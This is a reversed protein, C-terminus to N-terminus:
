NKKFKQWLKKAGYLGGLVGLGMAPSFEFPVPTVVPENARILWNGDFSRDGNINETLTAFPSSFLSNVDLPILPDNGTAFNAFLYSRGDIPNSRDQGAPLSGGVLNRVLAGIFFRDNVNFTVPTIPSVSFIGSGPNSIQTNVTQLVVADNPNGDNNPDSFLIVQSPAGNNDPNSTGYAVSISSIVEGGTQITFSNLWLLDFARVDTGFGVFNNLGNDISYVLAHSPSALLSAVLSIASISLLKNIM